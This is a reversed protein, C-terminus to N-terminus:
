LVIVLNNNRIEFSINEAMTWTTFEETNFDDDRGYTLEIETGDASLNFGFFVPAAVSAVLEYGTEDTKVQLFQKAKNTLNNPVKAANLATLTQQYSSASAAASTAANQAQTASTNAQSTARNAEQTAFTAQGAAATASNAAASASNAAATISAATQGVVWQKNVADTDAVPDDLNKIRRDQADFTGDPTKGITESVKDVAEQAANFVQILATDLDEESLVAGNVFDVARDTLNTSRQIRVVANSAPAPTINITSQSTFDFNQIESGNTFVSIEDQDVYSFPVTFTSTLGDATYEIYSYAMLGEIFVLPM